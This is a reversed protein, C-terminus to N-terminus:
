DSCAEALFRHYTVAVGSNPSGSPFFPGLQALFVFVTASPKSVDLLLPAKADDLVVRAETESLSVKIRHPRARDFPVSKGIPKSDSGTALTL